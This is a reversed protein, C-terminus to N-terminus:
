CCGTPLGWCVPARLIDLFVTQEYIASQPNHFPIWGIALQVALQVGTRENPWHMCYRLQGWLHIKTQQIMSYPTRHRLPLNDHSRWFFIFKNLMSYIRHKVYVRLWSGFSWFLMHLTYGTTHEDPVYKGIRLHHLIKYFQKLSHAWVVRNPWSKLYTREKYFEFQALAYFQSM